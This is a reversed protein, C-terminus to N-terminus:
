DKALNVLASAIASLSNGIDRITKKPISVLIETGQTVNSSFGTSTNTPITSKDSETEIKDPLTQIVTNADKRPRGRGRTPQVSTQPAINFINALPDIPTNSQQVQATPTGLLNSFDFTNNIPGDTDLKEELAELELDAEDTSDDYEDWPPSDDDSQETLSEIIVEPTNVPQELISTLPNVTAPIVVPAINPVPITGGFLQSIDIPNTQPINSPQSQPIEIPTLQIPEIIPQPNIPIQPPVQKVQEANKPAFLEKWMDNPQSM